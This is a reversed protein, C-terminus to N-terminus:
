FQTEPEDDAGSKYARGRKKGFEEYLRETENRRSEDSDKLQAKIVELEKALVENDISM